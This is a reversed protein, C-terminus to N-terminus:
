RALSEIGTLDGTGYDKAATSVLVLKRNNM